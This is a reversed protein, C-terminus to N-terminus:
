CCPAPVPARRSLVLPSRLRVILRGRRPLTNTVRHREAAARLERVHQDALISNLTRNM